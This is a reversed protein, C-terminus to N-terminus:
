GRGLERQQVALTAKFMARQAAKVAQMDRSLVARRLDADAIERAVRLQTLKRDEFLRSIFSM